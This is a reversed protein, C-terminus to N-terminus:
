QPLKVDFKIVALQEPARGLKRLFPLWRPDRQLKTFLPDVAIETLGTDHYAVAKDLWEFASDAEGRFAMVSAINYAWSKEDMRMLETLAADSEAQKGLAHWVMPLGILRWSESSENQMAALAEAPDGKLLLAVGIQYQAGSYGPSLYLATRRSAIAEDLRGAYSYQFGLNAYGVANVPDRATVYEGLAIATDLRGLSRALYAAFRITETNTPELALAHELHRAAAALDGDYEMAIRGLLGHVPTYEPDIALAKDVAERALRYGEDIPRLGDGAQSIYCAALGTWAAADNADIALAQQYLAISRELGDPTRQQWLQRAQLYLVYATPDVARMKPAVALLKLKLQAVVAAAIEDQLEFINDLPRDYTESWLHTDARADILQVTVRVQNGAKRVSGELIHAVNLRKAIEPIGVDKGKFSFASSRSIVRLQSIKALLNLLEEAIGDSFYEQDKEPSMDVFPLVAISKDGYSEVLAEGRGESRAASTQEAERQPALVFKDFAFYALALALVAMIVRDLKRGTQPTISKAREVDKGFKLGEPTFEFAWAFVLAPIFGITLAIVISRPLWALADFMPLVTSAVQVILWAGVLYLGAIRLVNRRKLEAFFSL